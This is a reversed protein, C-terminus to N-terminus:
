YFKSTCMVGAEEAGIACNEVGIGAHPCDSLTNESGDCNVDDLHYIQPSNSLVRHESLATSALLVTVHIIFSPYFPLHFKSGNYGLQRCVVIAERVDWSDDCVSGWVGNLCIEM